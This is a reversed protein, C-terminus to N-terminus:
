LNYKYFFDDIKCQLKRALAPLMDARLKYTGNEYKFYNSEDRLGLTTAMEKLSFGLEKRREKIFNFNIVKKRM